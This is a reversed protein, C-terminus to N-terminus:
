GRSEDLLTGGLYVPISIDGTNSSKLDALASQIGSLIDAVAGSSAGSQTIGSLGGSAPAGYGRCCLEHCQIRPEQKKSEVPWAPCSTRCGAKTILLRGSTPFRSIFFRNLPKAVNSVADKVKGICSKIGDIIGNIIDAGWNWASSALGKIFDVANDFSTKITDYIGQHCFRHRQLHLELRSSVTGSIANM